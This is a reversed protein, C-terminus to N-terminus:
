YSKFANGIQMDIEKRDIQTGCYHCMYTLPEKEVLEFLHRAHRDNNTVCRSNPCKLLREITKPYQPHFKEVVKYDKIENITIGEGGAIALVGFFKEDEILDEIKFVWKNKMRDSPINSKINVTVGKKIYPFLVLYVYVGRESPVHDIVVGDQIRPMMEYEENM